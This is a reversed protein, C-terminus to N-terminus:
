REKRESANERLPLRAIEVAWLPLYQLAACIAAVAVQIWAARWAAIRAEWPLSTGVAAPPREERLVDLIAPLVAYLVHNFVRVAMLVRKELAGVGAPHRLLRTEIRQLPLLSILTVALPIVTLMTLCLALYHAGNGEMGAAAGGAAHRLWSVAAGGYVVPLSAMAALGLATGYTAAGALWRLALHVALGYALWSWRAGPLLEGPLLHLPWGTLAPLALFALLLARGRASM